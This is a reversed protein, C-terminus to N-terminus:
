WSPLYMKVCIFAFAKNWDIETSLTKNCKKGKSGELCVSQSALM